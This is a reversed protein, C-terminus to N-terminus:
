FNFFKFVNAADNVYYIEILGYVDCLKLTLNFCLTYFYRKRLKELHADAYADCKKVVDTTPIIVNYSCTSEGSSNSNEAFLGTLLYQLTIIACILKIM